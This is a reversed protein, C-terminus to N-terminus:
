GTICQSSRWLDGREVYFIGQLADIVALSTFYATGGKKGLYWVAVGAVKMEGYRQAAPQILAVGPHDEWAEQRIAEVMRCRGCGDERLGEM